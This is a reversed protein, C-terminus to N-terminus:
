QVVLMEDTFDDLDVGDATPETPPQDARSFPDVPASEEKPKETPKVKARNMPTLGLRDLVALMYKESEQAVKLWLNPRESEVAEGHNDLRTYIRIEGEVALKALAKEHRTYAVAWLRLLEGDGPTLTQRAELLKCLKKMASRADKSLTGPFKPRGPAVDSTPEVYQPKTGTLKHIDLPKRPMPM